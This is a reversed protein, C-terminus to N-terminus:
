STTSVNINAAILQPEQNANVQVVSRNAAACSITDAATLAAGASTTAVSTVYVGAGGPSGSTQSVITTNAPVGTGSLINGPSLSGTVSTVTLNPGSGTGTFTGGVNQPNNINYTGVGGTGTGFSTIFTGTDVLGGADSLFDGDVITGSSISTVTLVGAIIYGVAVADPTNASGIEITAVQAWAGLAAIAPVYPAAYVTSNIRARPIPNAAAPAESTMAESAVNQTPGITYTGVGGTGTGPGTIATGPAINGTLDSLTQGVVITGSEIATVTLTTGAISGTFSATLSNGAFAALLANQIQTQADSPVLPGAAIVVKFLLQLTSPIEYTIQYPIPAVFLPNSDFATVTTNGFMPAGAGKKSLIAQAVDLPAGGAVCVYISYAPITVGNVTTPNASNNNFGYYDLVGSVKAVAGIISGIAGFSNGAVSDQRRAEFAARTEVNDGIVGSVVAASDWGPITQFPAVTQPVAVPGPLTCAFSLTVSGSEPIIGAQTAQYINGATDKITAGIPIPVDLGGSCSIQLATPEAPNRQMFYLNGIADQWRGFAYAPDTQQAQVLFANNSNVISGTMSTALQGQSTGLSALNSISLNLKGNFAAQIDAIVGTLVQTTSPAQFGTAGFTVAPVNTTM